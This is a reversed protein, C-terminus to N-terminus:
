FFVASDSPFKSIFCSHFVLSPLLPPAPPSINLSSVFASAFIHLSDSFSQSSLSYILTSPHSPFSVGPPEEEVKYLLASPILLAPSLHPLPPLLLPFDYVNWEWFYKFLLRIWHRAVVNHDTGGMQTVSLQPVDFPNESSWYSGTALSVRYSCQYKIWNWSHLVRFNLCTVARYNKNKHWM